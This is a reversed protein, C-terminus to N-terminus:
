TDLFTNIQEATMSIARGRIIVPAGREFEDPDIAAYFEQVIRRNARKPFSVYAEWRRRRIEDFIATEGLEEFSVDKEILIPRKTTSQLREGYIEEATREPQSSSQKEKGKRSGSGREITSAKRKPGM